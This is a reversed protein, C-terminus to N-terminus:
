KVIRISVLRRTSVGALSNEGGKRARVFLALLQATEGEEPSSTMLDVITTTLRKAVTEEQSEEAYMSDYDTGDTVLSYWVDNKVLWAVLAKDTATPEAKAQILFWFNDQKELAGNWLDQLSATLEKVPMEGNGLVVNMTM